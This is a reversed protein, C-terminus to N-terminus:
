LVGGEDNNEIVNVDKATREREKVKALYNTLHRRMREEDINKVLHGMHAISVKGTEESVIIAVCDTEETIGVGARHRTGLSRSIEDNQSLPFICGAAVLMGDKVIVGGDHLPTNPYFITSLLETKLETGIITGTEATTRMGIFREVAILAGIRREALYFATEILTDITEKSRRSGALVAARHQPHVGIEAFARRIEPQFIVLLSFPIVTWLRTMIWDIVELGLFISMSWFFVMMIILGALIPAGRTGRIFGLVFYIALYIMFIQIAVKGYTVLLGWSNIIEEWGAM